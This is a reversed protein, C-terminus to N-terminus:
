RAAGRETNGAYAGRAAAAFTAPNVEGAVKAAAAFTAPNVEGAVKAAAAFTAPNVEGAVQRFFMYPVNHTMVPGKSVMQVHPRM